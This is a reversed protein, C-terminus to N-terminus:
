RSRKPGDNEASKSGEESRSEQPTPVTPLPAEAPSSLGSLGEAVAEFSKAMADGLGEAMQKMMAELDVGLMRNLSANMDIKWAGDVRELVLPVPPPADQGPPATVTAVVVVQRGEAKPEGLVYSAISDKMSKLDMKEGERLVLLSRAAAEDGRVVAELFSLASGRAASVDQPTLGSASPEM